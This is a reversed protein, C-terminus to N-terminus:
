NASLTQRSRICWRYSGPTNGPEFCLKVGGALLFSYNWPQCESPRPIIEAPLFPSIEKNVTWHDQVEDFSSWGLGLECPQWLTGDILQFVLSSNADWVKSLKQPRKLARNRQKVIEKSPMENNEAGSVIQLSMLEVSVDSIGLLARKPKSLESLEFDVSQFLETYSSLEQLLLEIHHSQFLRNCRQFWFHHALFNRAEQAQILKGLLDQSVHRGAEKVAEGMTLAYASALKEDMRARTMMEPAGIDSFALFNCIGSHLCESFYYALGFQAYVEKVQEGTPPEGIIVQQEDKSPNPKLRLM